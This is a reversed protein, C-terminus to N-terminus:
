EEAIVARAPNAFRPKAHKIPLKKQLLLKKAVVAVVAVRAVLL